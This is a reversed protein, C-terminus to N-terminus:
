KYVPYAVGDTSGQHLQTLFNIAPKRNVPFFGLGDLPTVFCSDFFNVLHDQSRLVPDKALFINVWGFQNITRFCEIQFFRSLTFIGALRTRLENNLFFHKDIRIRKNPNPIETISIILRSSLTIEGVRSKSVIRYYSNVPLLCTRKAFPSCM